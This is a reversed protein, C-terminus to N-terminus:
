PWYVSAFITDLDIGFMQNM